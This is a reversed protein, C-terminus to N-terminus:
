RKKQNIFHELVNNLSVVTYFNNKFSFNLFDGTKLKLGFVKKAFQVAENSLEVGDAVWGLEKFRSLFM